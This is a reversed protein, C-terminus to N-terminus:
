TRDFKSATLGRRCIGDNGTARCPIPTDEAHHLTCARHAPRAAPDLQRCPRRSYRRAPGPAPGPTRRAPM